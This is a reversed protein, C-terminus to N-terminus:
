KKKTGHYTAQGGGGLGGWRNSYNMTKRSISGSNAEIFNGDRDVKLEIVNPNSNNFIVNIYGKKGYEIRGTSYNTGSWTSPISSINFASWEQVFDWDGVYKTRYDLPNKKCSIDLLVFFLLSVSTYRKM